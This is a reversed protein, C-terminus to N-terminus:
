TQLGALIMGAQDFDYRELARRLDHLTADAESHMAHRGLRDIEAIVTSLSDLTDHLANNVSDTNAGDSLLATELAASRALLGRAGINGALGKFTHM